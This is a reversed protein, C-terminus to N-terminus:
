PTNQKKNKTKITNKTKQTKHKTKTPTEENTANTAVYSM